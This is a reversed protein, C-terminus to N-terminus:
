GFKTSGGSVTTTTKVVSQWLSINNNGGSAALPNSCPSCAPGHPQAGCFNEYLAANYRLTLSIQAEESSSQDLEGFDIGEPWVNKLEWAELPDGCGSWMVLYGTATYDSQVAGQHLDTSNTYDYVSALWSWLPVLSPGAVDIYTVTMTEWTGKGPIFNKANLYNLETSEITLNPRAAVKVFSEGVTEGTSNLRFQLTWRFKRKIILNPDGLLGIGMPQVGM